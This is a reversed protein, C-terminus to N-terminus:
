KTRLFFDTDKFKLNYLLNLTQCLSSNDDHVTFISTQRGSVSQLTIEAVDDVNIWVSDYEPTPGNPLLMSFLLYCSNIFNEANSDELSVTARVFALDQDENSYEVVSEIEASSSLISSICNYPIDGEHMEKQITPSEDKFDVTEGFSTTVFESTAPERFQSTTDGSDKADNSCGVMCVLLGISILAAFLKNKMNDGGNGGDYLLKWHCDVVM